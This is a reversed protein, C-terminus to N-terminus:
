SLSGSSASGGVYVIGDSMSYIYPIYLYIPLGITIIILQYHSPGLVKIVESATSTLKTLWNGTANGPGTGEEKKKNAVIQRTARGDRDKDKDEDDFTDPKATTPVTRLRDTWKDPNVQLLLNKLDASQPQLVYM